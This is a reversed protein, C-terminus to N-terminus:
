CVIVYRLSPSIFLSGNMTLTKQFNVDVPPLAGLRLVTKGDLSLSVQRQSVIAKSFQTFADLDLIPALQDLNIQSVPTSILQPVAASSFPVPTSGNVPLFLSSNFADLTPAFNTAHTLESKLVLQFSNQTPNLV